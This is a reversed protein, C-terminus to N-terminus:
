LLGLWWPKRVPRPRKRLRAGRSRSFRLARSNVLLVDIDADLVVGEGHVALSLELFILLFFGIATDLPLIAAEGAGESQGVCNLSLVDRGVIVLADQLDLQRLFSFGLRLLDLDVNTALARELSLSGLAGRLSVAFGPM